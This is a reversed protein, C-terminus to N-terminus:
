RKRHRRKKSPELMESPLTPRPQKFFNVLDEKSKIGKSRLQKDIFAICRKPNSDKFHEKKLLNSFHAIRILEKPNLDKMPAAYIRDFEEPTLKEKSIIKLLSENTKDDSLLFDNFAYEEDSLLQRKQDENKMEMKDEKAEGKGEKVEGPAIVHQNLEKRVLLAFQLFHDATLDELFILRDNHGQEVNLKNLVDSIIRIMNVPLMSLEQEYTAETYESNIQNFILQHHAHTYTTSDIEYSPNELMLFANNLWKATESPLHNNPIQNFHNICFSGILYLLANYGENITGGSKFVRCAYEGYKVKLMALGIETVLDVQYSGPNKLKPFHLKYEEHTIYIMSQSIYRKANEVVKDPADFLIQSSEEDLAYNEYLLSIARALEFSYSPFTLLFDRYRLYLRNDSRELMDFAKILKIVDDPSNAMVRQTLEKDKYIDVLWLAIRDGVEPEMLIWSLNDELFKFKVPDSGVISNFLTFIAQAINKSNKPDKILYHEFDATFGASDLDRLSGILTFLDEFPMRDLTVKKRIYIINNALRHAEDAYVSLFDCYYKYEDVDVKMEKQDKKFFSKNLTVLGRAMEGADKPNRLITELSQECFSSDYKEKELIIIADAISEAYRAHKIILDRYKQYLEPSYNNLKIFARTLLSAEAPYDIMLRYNEDNFLKHDYTKDYDALKRFVNKLATLIIAASEYKKGLMTLLESTLKYNSECAFLYLCRIFNKIASPDHHDQFDGLLQDLVYVIEHNSFVGLAKLQEIIKDDSQIGTKATIQGIIFEERIQREKQDNVSSYM